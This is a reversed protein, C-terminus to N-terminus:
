SLKSVMEGHPEPASRGLTVYIRSVPEQGRGEGEPHLMLSVGHQGKLPGHGRGVKRGVSQPGDGLASVSKGLREQSQEPCCILPLSAAVIFTIVILDQFLQPCSLKTELWNGGVKLENM